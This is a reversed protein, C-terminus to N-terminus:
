EKDTAKRSASSGSLVNIQPSSKERKDKKRHLCLITQAKELFEKQVRKQVTKIFYLVTVNTTAKTSCGFPMM